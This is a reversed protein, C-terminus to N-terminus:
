ILGQYNDLHVFNTLLLHDTIQLHIIIKENIKLIKLFIKNLFEQYKTTDRKYIRRPDGLVRKSTEYIRRPIRLYTKYM